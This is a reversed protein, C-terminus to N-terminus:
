IADASYASLAEELRERARNALRALGIERALAIAPDGSGTLHSHEQVLGILEPLPIEDLSRRDGDDTHYRFPILDPPSEIAWLFRGPSEETVVVDPLLDLVRQKIKNGTRAFGHARAIERALADDRIPSQIALVKAAMARLTDSYDDDFFRGQNVTADPLEARVYLLRGKAPVQSAVLQPRSQGEEPCMPVTECVNRDHEVNIRDSDVQDLDEANKAQGSDMGDVSAIRLGEAAEERLRTLRKNLFEDLQRVASDPDYWWDTSWVRAITWGLNELIQQRTKDRDRAVASRHYTAGDCEVGALYTGPRDPHVVGLDIRYKSVGVQTDVQWGHEMLAAAVAEELPSEPDGLAGDVRAVLAEPGKQAYELFAKLDHVGRAGSRESRFQEPLFSAFVVLERRARTVAVNLRREGGDRNIAGFDIPFRGSADFGFAVSFLMVDREDGQVNELNKVVTPEFRDDSFFWELEPFRRQADDLLDLLLEQQQGNFTVVGYSLRQDEPKGLCLRMREVLTSVIAEAELRNTRRKGRDYLAGDVHRFSVGRGIQSAAPFTVLRNGYYNWNSFAILSEHQSRYHWNLQRTPLGSAQAEDLISELDREHDELEANDEDNDSRGFFNTPPLQKPDGVIITQKGRAIAGIADWTAIQSAEDFIVVDFLAQDVPLYQAISLPSMLLCPALKGFTGPMGGIVERISKSPRKLGMQHRLLGLESKRPVENSPPLGHFATQRVWPAAERRAEDDLRRFEEITGEHMYKQFARLPERQDVVSPLWWRAYALEFRSVVDSPRLEGSLLAEVFVALGIEDARRRVAKWATLPKLSTRNSVVTQANRGADSIVSSSEKAVPTTGAERNYATWAAQFEKASQCFDAATIQRSQPSATLIIQLVQRLDDASIGLAAVAERLQYAAQIPMAIGDADKEVAAQLAPPLGLTLLNEKLKGDLVSIENKGSLLGRAAAVLSDITGHTAKGVAEPTLGAAQYAERIRQALQLQADLGAPDDKVLEQLNAPLGLSTLNAELRRGVERYEHLLPLDVEPAAEAEATMYAKIRKKVSRKRWVALPWHSSSARQWQQELGEVPIRDILASSFSRAQMADHATNRDRLLGARGALARSLSDFREHFVIAAEPLDSRVLENTLNYLPRIMEKPIVGAASIGLSECFALLTTHLLETAQSRRRLLDGRAQLGVQLDDLRDHLLLEGPPLDQRALERALRYLATLGASSVDVRQPIGLGKVFAGLAAALPESACKLQHCSELLRDEWATSWETMQVRLVAADTPMAQITSALSSVTELLEEYQKRDHRVTSPWNLRPTEVQRGRVCEGMAQYPTWGNAEPTHVAATYANLQDRRVRLQDNIRIWDTADRKGRKQWSAALQELFRCRDAKNSHLELCCDELGHGRLRRYVVDLAATKEAVFLVTKSVALCQAILNAITQSKGTGPPGVIVLDHGESAAMIAALQSSDAPLPHALQHPKYRMDIEHPQPMPAAVDSEFARDPEHILHRVVRNHELQGVRDVLDKWMLYKAFSFPAIAAEEVVEFGPIDRVAQRMRDLVLPVDIGSDDTPLEAGFETLDCDFDKKLLQLLTANFRVDDEHSSLYYPSSTSRRSLTVPVLLLPARYITVDPPPQKWRLFGVALYLTNAGGEALDSRVKRYLATLRANLDPSEVPCVIEDRELAQRAFEQDPDQQTRRRHLDVDRQSILNGDALSVLRMRAGDALRDELRSVDPCLVPVTQKTPRFNLLRNRLSLDLLRRQWREIRGAPTRPREIEEAAVAAAFDPATPLPPTASKTEHDVQGDRRAERSALPRIQSMRARAVDIVAVFEHEKDESLALSAMTVAEPFQGPPCHTVTTTEFVILEKASIAKRLESCDREILQKFTKEVLWVGCCCHNKTMVLVPNLGMAELGSGFLLSTDLCTALRDGLVTAVRRVKQGVQEFSGPPNAYILSRGAVASWLSAAFMYARNPDRSQYGDMATSYGRQGLLTAAASLLPAIAPDNPTVFAPLLEMASAGGWEDRALVRLPKSIEQLFQGKHSLQFVIVGREAEDLGDLYDPDIDLDIDKIVLTEGAGVRDITWCKDRSFSPSAKMEIVVSSLEPGDTNDIAMRRLLPVANQWAAYNFSDATDVVLCPSSHGVASLGDDPNAPLASDTNQM